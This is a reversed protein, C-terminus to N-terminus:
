FAELSKPVPLLPGINSSIVKTPDTAVGQASIVHGLYALERKAFSCKSLNVKFQHKHLLAFVQHSALTRGM